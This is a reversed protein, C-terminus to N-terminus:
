RGFVMQLKMLHSEIYQSSIIDDDIYVLIILDTLDRLVYNMLRQFTARSTSLGNLPEILIICDGILLLQLRTIIKFGFSKQFFFFFVLNALTDISDTINLLPYNDKILNKNLKQYGKVLRHQGDAKKVLVIPSAFDLM